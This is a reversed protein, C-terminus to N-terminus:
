LGTQRRRSGTVELKRERNWWLQGEDMLYWIARKATHSRVGYRQSVSDIIEQPSRATTSTRVEDLVLTKARKAEDRWNAV